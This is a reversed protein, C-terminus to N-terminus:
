LRRIASFLAKPYPDLQGQYVTPRIEVVDFRARDGFLKQIDDPSFRHPGETGPQLHSFTKLFLWGSPALLRHMSDVYAARKEPPIVHFCGRDFILDFTQALRTALVDDEVFTVAAGGAKARRGAYALAAPSIDTATVAFGRAALAIAQTGPGTGQDLARGGSIGHRQLATELDPDISPWYWPLSEVTDSRYLEEWNPFGLPRM